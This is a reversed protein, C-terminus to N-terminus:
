GPLVPRQREMLGGEAQAKLDNGACFSRDGKGTIIAVLATPDAEFEDFIRALQFHAAAHLANSREHAHHRSTIPGAREVKAFSEPLM